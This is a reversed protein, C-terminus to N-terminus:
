LLKLKGSKYYKYGLFGVIIILLIWVWKPVSSITITDPVLEVKGNFYGPSGALWAYGNYGVNITPSSGDILASTYSFNGNVDSSFTDLPMISQDGTAFVDAYVYPLGKGSQSDVFQGTITMEFIKKNFFLGSDFSDGLGM